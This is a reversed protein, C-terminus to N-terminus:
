SDLYSLRRYNQPLAVHRVATLTLSMDSVVSAADDADTSRGDAKRSHLRDKVRSRIKAFPMEASTPQQTQIPAHTPFGLLLLDFSKSRERDDFTHTVFMERIVYTM